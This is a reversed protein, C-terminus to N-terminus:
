PAEKGGPAAPSPLDLFRDRYEPRPMLCTERRGLFRHRNRAILDYGWDLWATPLVEFVSAARWPWGLSKAISLAARAKILCEPHDGRYGAVVYVTSLRSPVGGFRALHISASPGQLPAFHFVGRPDRPLVFQILGHCLGCEGDYLVLHPGGGSPAPRCSQTEARAM